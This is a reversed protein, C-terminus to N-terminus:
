WVDFALIFEQEGRTRRDTPESVISCREDYRANNKQADIQRIDNSWHREHLSESSKIRVVTPIVDVYAAFREDRYWLHTRLEVDIAIEYGRIRLPALTVTEKVELVGEEFM